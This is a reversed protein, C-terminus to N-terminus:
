RVAANPALDPRVLHVTDFAHIPIYGREAWVRQVVINHVQTSIVLSEDGRQAVFTEAAAMSSRYAGRGRADPAVGSLTIESQRGSREIAVFASVESEREVLLVDSEKGEIQNVAWEAYGAGIASAALAPNARYHSDYDDFTSTAVRDVLVRDDKGAARFRSGDGLPTPQPDTLQWYVITDAHFAIRLGSALTAAWSVRDAPYRVVVIDAGSDDTVKLIDEVTTSSAPGVEVRAIGVGFRASERPSLELGPQLHGARLLDVLSM